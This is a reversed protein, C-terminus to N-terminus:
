VVSKRDVEIESYLGAINEATVLGEYQRFGHCHRKDNAEDLVAAKCCVLDAKQTEM